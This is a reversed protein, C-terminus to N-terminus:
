LSEVYANLSKFVKELEDFIESNCNEEALKRSIKELTEYTVMKLGEFTDAVKNFYRLANFVERFIYEVDTVEGKLMEIEKKELSLKKSPNREHCIAGTLGQVNSFEQMLFEAFDRTLRNRDVTNLYNVFDPDQYLHQSHDKLLPPLLEKLGVLRESKTSTLDQIADKVTKSGHFWARLQIFFNKDTVGHHKLIVGHLTLAFAQYISDAVKGEITKPDLRGIRDLTQDLKTMAVTVLTTYERMSIYIPTGVKKEPDLMLYFSPDQGNRSATARFKDVWQYFITKIIARTEPRVDMRPFVDKDLHQRMVEFNGGAPIVDM